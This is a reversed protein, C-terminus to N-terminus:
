SGMKQAYLQSQYYAFYCRGKDRSRFDWQPFMNRLLKFSEDGKLM